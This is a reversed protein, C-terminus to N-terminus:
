STREGAAVAAGTGAELIVRAARRGSIVAGEMTALFPQATWDGALTLGAIPTRQAPRLATHGPALSMFDEAFRVVRYARLTGALDLGLREADALVTALVEEPPARLLPEPPSCIVSLRGPAHRFTTRSQEAYSALVTGPSFTTRDVPLLPRDLEAQFTVVAMSPLRLLPELWGQGAFARRLLRQAPVLSTALVVQRAGLREGAARVGNVRGARHLLREVPVGTCVTGGARHIAAALPAALVETMPGAFAGIRLRPLRQVTQALLGFLVLASYREPPLFFLGATLPVLLREVVRQPLGHARAYQLVSRQDLWGPRLLADRLGAAAFAALRVKDLPSLLHNNAALGALSTVPNHVPAAGFVADPGSDPLRIEVEDEWCVLEDISLGARALVEPLARYIGLMRHLGSEVPMGQETWSSTRGGVVERAELVLVERGATALEFACALGALGAGAVVVDADTV